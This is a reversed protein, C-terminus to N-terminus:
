ECLPKEQSFDCLKQQTDCKDSLIWNTLRYNLRCGFALFNNVRKGIGKSSADDAPSCCPVAKKEPIEEAALSQPLILSLALVVIAFLVIKKSTDLLIM